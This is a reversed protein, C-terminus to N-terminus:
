ARVQKDVGVADLGSYMINIWGDKSSLVFLSMLAQPLNDFNYKKNLWQNDPHKTLCETKNTVLQIDPGTCHYFTGKFLQM